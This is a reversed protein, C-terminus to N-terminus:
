YQPCGQPQITEAPEKPVVVRSVGLVKDRGWGWSRTTKKKGETM